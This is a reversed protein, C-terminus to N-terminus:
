CGRSIVVFVLCGRERGTFDRRDFLGGRLDYAFCFDWPAWNGRIVKKDGGRPLVWGEVSVHYMPMTM